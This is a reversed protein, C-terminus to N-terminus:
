ELHNLYDLCINPNIRKATGIGIKPQFDNVKTQSPPEIIFTANIDFFQLYRLWSIIHTDCTHGGPFSTPTVPIEVLSVWLM